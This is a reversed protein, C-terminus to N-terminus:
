QQAAMTFLADLDLGAATAIAQLRANSREWTLRNNYDNWALKRETPDVINDIITEVATDKGMLILAAKGQANTVASPITARVPRTAAISWEVGSPVQLAAIEEITLSELAEPSPAIAKTQGNETYVIFM